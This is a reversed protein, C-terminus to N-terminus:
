SQGLFVMLERQLGTLAATITEKPFPIYVLGQINSPINVHEEHLLAVNHLGYKGQFFGIEHMVNERARTEEGVTDDGTMVIAAFGCRDAEENLKQLVTRGKSAEQALELTQLSMDKELFAQVARWAESRGHSIFVRRPRAVEEQREGIRYSSRVELMYDLSKLIPELQRRQYINMSGNKGWPTPIGPIPMDGYLDPLQAVLERQLQVLHSLLHDVVRGDTRDNIDWSIEGINKRLGALKAFLIATKDM